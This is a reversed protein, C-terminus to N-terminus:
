AAAVTGRLGTRWWSLGLLILGALRPLDWIYASLSVVAGAAGAVGISPLLFIVETVAFLAVAVFLSVRGLGRTIGGREVFAAAATGVIIALVVIVRRTWEVGAIAASNDSFEGLFALQGAATLVAWALLLVRGVVRSGPLADLHRTGFAFAIGCAILVLPAVLYNLGTLFPPVPGGLVGLSGRFDLMGSLVLIITSLVGLLAAAWNRTPPPGDAFPADVTPM